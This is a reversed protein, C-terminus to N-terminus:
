PMIIGGPQEAGPVVIKSAEQRQYERADEVLKEVAQKVAAPFKELAEALGDAEIPAQIPLPGAQSMIQTQGMYKVPRDPDDTGDTKVPILRQMTGVTLDTIIEERYLNSADMKVNELNMGPTSSM